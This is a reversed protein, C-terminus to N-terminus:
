ERVRPQICTVPWDLDSNLSDPLAQVPLRLQFQCLQYKIPEERLKWLDGRSVHLSNVRVISYVSHCLLQCCSKGLHLMCERSFSMFGYVPVLAVVDIKHDARQLCRTLLLFHCRKRKNGMSVPKSEYLGCLLQAMVVQSTPRLRLGARFPGKDKM